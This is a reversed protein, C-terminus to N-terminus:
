KGPPLHPVLEQEERGLGKSYEFLEQATVFANYSLAQILDHELHKLELMTLGVDKGVSQYFHDDFMKTSLGDEILKVAVLLGAVFLRHATLTTVYLHTDSSEAALRDVYRCPHATCSSRPSVSILM